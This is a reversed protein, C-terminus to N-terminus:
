GALIIPSREFSRDASRCQRRNDIRETRGTSTDIFYTRGYPSAFGADPKGEVTYFPGGPLVEGRRCSFTTGEEAVLSTLTPDDFQLQVSGTMDWTNGFVPVGPAFEVPQGFTWITSEPRPDPLAQRITTLVRVDENYAGTFYDSYDNVSRVWSISILVCAAGAGISSLLRARPLGRFALTAGLMLIAYLVLVWGISPVANVRNGVGPALPNYYDTGPVYIAYGLILVVLGAGLVVLWRRLETRGPVAPPSWLYVVIAAAPVLAVLGVVYWAINGFPLVVTTFLARASEFILKGHAWIGAETEEHGASSALTVFLVVPLLVACDAVWRLAAPRWPVYLRYLLVSVLMIPLAVEYFLLSAVFLLLSSVHLAAKAAPRKADFASLALNFGLLAALISAPAQITPTWFRLSSAAPFVLVLLAIIGADIPRLSLRRLLVFLALVMLVNTAIQWTLWFGVHDGFVEYLTVFYLSQLPRPAFNAQEEFYSFTHWLGHTPAFEYLALQSWADSLFGGHVANPEYLLLAIAGAIVGVIAVELLHRRM